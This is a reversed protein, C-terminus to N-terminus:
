NKFFNYIFLYLITKLINLFLINNIKLHHSYLSLLININFFRESKNIIKNIIIIRNKLNIALLLNFLFLKLIFKEFFTKFLYFILILM